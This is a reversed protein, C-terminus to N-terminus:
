YDRVNVPNACQTCPRMPYIEVSLAPTQRSFITARPADTSWEYNLQMAVLPGLGQLSRIRRYPRSSPLTFNSPCAFPTDYEYVISAKYTSLPDIEYEWVM